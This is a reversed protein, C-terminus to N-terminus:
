TTGMLSLLRISVICVIAFSDFCVQMWRHKLAQECTLRQAPDVVLLGAVFAKAEESVSVHEPWEWTGAKM